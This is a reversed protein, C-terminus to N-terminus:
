VLGNAFFLNTAPDGLIEDRAMTRENQLLSSTILKEKVYASVVHKKEVNSMNAKEAIENLLLSVIWRSKIPTHQCVANVKRDADEEELSAKDEDAV